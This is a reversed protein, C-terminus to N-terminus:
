KDTETRAGGSDVGPEGGIHPPHTAAPGAAAAGSPAPSRSRWSNFDESFKDYRQNRWERYENELKRMQESRLQHYEPAHQFQHHDQRALGYQSYLEPSPAEVAHNSPNNASAYGGRVDERGCFDQGYRHQASSDVPYEGRGQNGSDELADGGRDNGHNQDAASHRGTSSNAYARGPDPNSEGAHPDEPPRGLRGGYTTDRLNNGGAQAPQRPSGPGGSPEPLGSRSTSSCREEDTRGARGDQGQRRNDQDSM